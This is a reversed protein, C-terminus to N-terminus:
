AFLSAGGSDVAEMEKETWARRRFRAPLEDRDWVEGKSPQVSGLQKGSHGGIAGYPQQAPTHAPPPASAASQQQQPQSQSQSGSPNGGLPGHQIARNRYQAFSEPLEHTPSEPHAHPTHDM